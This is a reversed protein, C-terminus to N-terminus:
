KKQRPRLLVGNFLWTAPGAYGDCFVDDRDDTDSSDDDPGALLFAGTADGGGRAGAFQGTGGEFTVAYYLTFMKGKPDAPDPDAWGEVTAEIEEGALTMITMKGALRFLHGGPYVKPVPVSGDHIQVAFFVKCNGLNSVQVIGRVQHSWPLPGSSDLNFATGANITLRTKTFQPHDRDAPGASAAATLLTGIALATAWTKGSLRLTPIQLTKM